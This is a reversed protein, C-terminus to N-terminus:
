RSIVAALLGATVLGMGDEPDILSLEERLRDALREVEDRDGRAAAARIADRYLLESCPEVVLGKAAAEQAGRHDGAECLRVSLVHAVDVIASIMEQIDAEAWTYTAPDIGLFPRGRVLQLAASLDDVGGAGEALGRRALCVFDHWDCTVEPRLRYEGDDAVLPLYAEGDPTRGLWQRVRSVFPNRTNKAVRRGPWLAEDVQHSTAGGHLALYAVLETARRRRGPAAGDDAGEVHVPGLFLVRPPVGESGPLGASNEALEPLAQLTARRDDTLDPGAPEMPPRGDAEPERPTNATALLAMLNDHDDQTLHQPSIEIGPPDLRASGDPRIRITCRGDEVAERGVLLAAVGSWPRPTEPLEEAAVLIEPCTADSAIGRARADRIGAAGSGALVQRIAAARAEAERVAAAGGALLRARGPGVVQALDAFRGVLTLTCEATLPGVALDMALARLVSEAAEQPGILTVSGVAELNLLIYADDDVGVGVLGPFPDTADEDPRTSPMTELSWSRADTARFPPVPDVDDAMLLLKIATSTVRIVAVDPLVRGADRCSKALVRLAAKLTDATIPDAAARAQQEAAAPAAAPMAIRQGPRRSRQQLRRRRTLEAVLGTLLITGLGLVLTPAAPSSNETNTATASSSGAPPPSANPTGTTAAPGPTAAPSPSPRPEPPRNPATRNGRPPAASAREGPAVAPPAPLRLRWGPRIEDPDTLRLGDPQPRGANLAYIDRYREGAGLAKDAIQWLSDGREVTYTRDPGSATMRDVTPTQPKPRTDTPLRLVWGPYIWNADTLTRGDPQPRGRNLDVIEGFRQGSGLHTEALAWLTDHRAVTVTPHAPGTGRDEAAPRVPPEVSAPTSSQPPPHHTVEVPVVAAVARAVPPHSTAGAPAMLLAATAILAAAGRQPVKLLPLRPTPVGRVLAGVEVVVSLSFMAWGTWAIVLLALLFLGGDDPRTLASSLQSLAFGDTLRLSRDLAWLAVPVGLVLTALALAALVARASDAVTRRAARDEVHAPPTTSTM